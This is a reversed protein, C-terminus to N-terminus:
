NGGFIEKLDPEIDWPEVIPKTLTVGRNMLSEMESRIRNMVTLVTEKKNGKYDQYCDMLNFSNGVLIHAKRPRLNAVGFILNEYRYIWEMMREASPYSLLYEPKIILFIYAREVDKKIATIEKVTYKKNDKSAELSDIATFINRIKDIANEEESFHIGLKEAANNLAAHRVRGARYNYDKSNDSAIGYDNEFQELLVRGITLFRRLFKHGEPNIGLKRELKSLSGDIENYLGSSRGSLIYKVFVPLVQVGEKSGKKISDELGWFGIQAVGPMFTLLNDNESSLMGEPYIVLKGSPSSLVSRAMKISDKDAGGSLVSFAGVRKILEGTLGFGWNFVNRSAMFYFRSGMLNAVQYAVAPEITSPHNGIYLVKNDKHEVLKAKDGDDITVGDVNLATKLILPSFFDLAWMFPYSVDHSIFIGRSEM